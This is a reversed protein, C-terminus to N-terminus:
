KKRAKRKGKGASKGGDVLFWGCTGKIQSYQKSLKEREVQTWRIAFMVEKEILERDGEPLLEWFIRLHDLIQVLSNTDLCKRLFNVRDLFWEVPTMELVSKKQM